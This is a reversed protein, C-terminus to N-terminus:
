MHHYTYIVFIKLEERNESNVNKPIVFGVGKLLFRTRSIQLFLSTYEYQRLVYACVFIKAHHM